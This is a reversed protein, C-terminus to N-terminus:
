VVGDIPDVVAGVRLAQAAGVQGGEVALFLPERQAAGTAVREVAVHYTQLADAPESWALAALDDVVAPMATALAVRALAHAWTRNRSRTCITVGRATIPAHESGRRASRRLYRLLDDNARTTGTEDSRRGDRNEKRSWVLAMDEPRLGFLARYM